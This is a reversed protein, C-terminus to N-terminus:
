AQRAPEPEPLPSKGQDKRGPALENLIRLRADALNFLVLTAGAQTLREAAKGSQGVEGWRGVYIPLREQQARLRRVLYRAPTLGVPPLHSLLVLRPEHEEVAHNLAMPSAVNTVITMPCHSRELLTQLMKLVLADSRDNAAVGLLASAPPAESPDIKPLGTASELEIEPTAAIEDIQEGVVRWVFEQVREDIEGRAMDREARSLAPVLIQDFIAAHPLEKLAEELVEVAGDQDLALLRQYFRVDRALEAEEGLLTAFVSLQPVYKGLVALCVTLPTALLMGVPGWLWTWFMIAVLLGVASVGTTRGYMIPEVFSSMFIEFTAYVGVITLAEWWAPFYALSFIAPLLYAAVPGIYPVFRLVAGMAGWALAYPVGILWLGLALLGGMIANYALLIALFRSIRQGLEELSRTTLTIRNPGILQVMRDGLDERNIMLFVVLILVISGVALLELWPGVAWEFREQFSPESVVKVPQPLAPKTSDEPGTARADAGVEKVENVNAPVVPKDISEAVESAVGALKDLASQKTPKLFAVKERLNQRLEQSAVREALSLVQQAVVYGVAGISGVVLVLALLVSAVRPLGRREFANSLPTLALGLLLALALPQLVEAAFYVFGIIAFILFTIIIPHDIAFPQIRKAAV